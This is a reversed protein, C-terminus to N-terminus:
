SQRSDNKKKYKDLPYRTPNKPIENISALVENRVIEANQVSDEKIYQIIKKLSYRASLDWIIKSNSM